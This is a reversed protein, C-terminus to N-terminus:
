ANEGRAALFANLSKKDEVSFTRLHSGMKKILGSLVRGPGVEVFTVVGQGILREISELWRVPAAVQRILADCADAGHRVLRADANTILPFRLDRFVTKKLDTALKEQAPRMLECHFPASVPLPVAKAGLQKARAVAREVAKAHGAIVIQSPSNINAPSVVEGQAVEKCLNNVTEASLGIVAAMAGHGVPVAEQMYRGRKKVLWLADSLALSGSAVLAVYEGVSHGAVYDPKVALRELVRHIAISTTLIAPQTNETLRLEEEPGEFCLRSLSFALISDAEKFTNLCVEYESALDKGMGAYQSGQGPFVFATKSM